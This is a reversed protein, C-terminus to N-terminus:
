GNVTDLNSEDIGTAAHEVEGPIIDRMIEGDVLAVVRDASAITERRHAVIIRTIKLERIAANVEQERMIDLHSTAEDLILL